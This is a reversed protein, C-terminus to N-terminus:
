EIWEKHSSFEEKLLNRNTHFHFHLRETTDSEKTIGYVTTQWAGGAMPSDLCSCQLPNVNGEGYSRGLGPTSDLDRANCASEKGDSSGPFGETQLLYWNKYLKQSKNQPM